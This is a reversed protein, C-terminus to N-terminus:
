EEEDEGFLASVQLEVAEFPEAHVRADRETALALLYGEKTWRFVSLTEEIPDVIWYHPVGFQHYRNLKKVRDTGPNSPSLVECVWDPRLRIPTGRPREPARERRWGVVDPRYVEVETFEVEVETFIWWGGPQKGGPRRQFPGKLRAVLASQADGHEAAPMAKRVLEGDIVEHFREEEPISLLDVLTAPIRTGALSSMAGLKGGFPPPRVIPNDAAPRLAM